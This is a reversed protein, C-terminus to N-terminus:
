NSVPKQDEPELKRSPENTFHSRNALRKRAPDTAEAEAGALPMELM